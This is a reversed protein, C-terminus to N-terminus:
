TTGRKKRIKNKETNLVLRIAEQKIRAMRKEREEDTLEPRLITTICAKSHITKVRYGPHDPSPAWTNMDEM